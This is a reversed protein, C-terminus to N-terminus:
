RRENARRALLRAFAAFPLLRKLPWTTRGEVDTLIRFRRRAVGRYIAEAVEEAGRPAGTVLREATAKLAPDPTRATDILNTRFFCPCVVSVAVGHPRLEAYLTESLAVVAAKTANYPGMLPPHVLGALSAINVLHGGGRKKFRGAFARCGRVVGLLNVDVIWRWDALPVDEIPGSAVVGANNFVLDCGGWARDLWDAAAEVDADATVDCRRFEATAGAARLAAVVEAGKEDQIDGVLVRWGARAYRGALARGLGSAGGTVFVRKGSM